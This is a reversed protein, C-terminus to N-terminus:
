GDAREQEVLQERAWGGVVLQGRDVGRRGATRAIGSAAIRDAERALCAPRDDPGGREEVVSAVIRMWRRSKRRVVAAAKATIPRVRLLERAALGARADRTSIMLAPPPSREVAANWADVFVDSLGHPM